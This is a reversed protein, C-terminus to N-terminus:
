ANPRNRFDSVDNLKGDGKFKGDLNPTKEQKLRQGGEEPHRRGLVGDAHLTHGAEIEREIRADDGTAKFRRRVARNLFYIIAIIGVAFIVGFLAGVLPTATAVPWTEM